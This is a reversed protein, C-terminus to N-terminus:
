PVPNPLMMVIAAGLVTLLFRWLAKRGAVQDPHTPDLPKQEGPRQPGAPKPDPRRSSAAQPESKQPDPRVPPQAKPDPTSYPNTMAVLTGCPCVIAGGHPLMPPTFRSTTRMDPCPLLRCASSS